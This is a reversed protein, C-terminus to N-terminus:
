LSHHALSCRRHSIRSRDRCQGKWLNQFSLLFSLFIMLSLYNIIYNIFLCCSCRLYKNLLSTRRRSVALFTGYAGYGTLGLMVQALPTGSGVRDQGPPPIPNLGPCPYGWGTRVPPYGWGTMALTVGPLSRAGTSTNHIGWRGVLHSCVTFIVNM